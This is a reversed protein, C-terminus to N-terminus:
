LAEAPRSRMWRFRRDLRALSQQNAVDMMELDVDVPEEVQDTGAPQSLEALEQIEPAVGTVPNAQAQHSVLIATIMRATTTRLTELEHRTRDLEASLRRLEGEMWWDTARLRLGDDTGGTTEIFSAQNGRPDLM